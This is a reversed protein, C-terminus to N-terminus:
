LECARIVGGALLRLGHGDRAYVAAVQGPAPPSQKEREPFSLTMTAEGDLEAFEVRVPELSQRYRTKALLGGQGDGGANQGIDPWQEKPVLFNLESCLCGRQGFDARTGVILANEAINKGLVYLPESWAIGLGHRQGQTYAWLGKHQAIVRGDPLKVPGPGGLELGIGSARGRLFARYDNDSIFCIEQSEGPQPVALGRAALEALVERKSKVGLPFYARSLKELPTLSLFYSQDKSQDAGAYMATLNPNQADHALEAYHGTVICDAGLKAAEDWLLGFKMAPNCRACPNPTLGQQYARVFPAIVLKEFAQALDAIHLRVGLRDCCDQLSQLMAPYSDPRLEKPLFLAHLAVPELGAEKLQVLSFLSDAGGSVAVAPIKGRLFHPIDM